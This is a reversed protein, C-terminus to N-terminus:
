GPTATHYGPERTGNMSVVTLQEVVTGVHTIGNTAAVSPYCKTFIPSAPRDAARRCAEPESQKSLDTFPWGAHNGLLWGAKVTHPVIHPLPCGNRDTACGFRSAPIGAGPLVLLGMGLSLCLDYVPRILQRGNQDANLQGISFHGLIPRIPRYFSGPRFNDAAESRAADRWIL